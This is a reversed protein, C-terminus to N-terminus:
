FEKLGIVSGIESATSVRSNRAKVSLMDESLKATVAVNWYTGLVTWESRYSLQRTIVFEVMAELSERLIVM